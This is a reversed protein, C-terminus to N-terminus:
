REEDLVLAAGEGREREQEDRAVHAGVPPLDAEGAAVRVQGVRAAHQVDRDVAARLDQDVVGAGLLRELVAAREVAEPVHHVVEALAVRELRVVLLAAPQAEV